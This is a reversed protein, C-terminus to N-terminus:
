LHKNQLLVRMLICFTHIPFGTVNWYCGRIGKVFTSAKGDQIGYGGAKDMPLGTLVYGHIMDETLQDFDVETRTVNMVLRCHADIYESYHVPGAAREETGSAASQDHRPTVLVLATLVAHSSGSLTRLMNHADTIDSPKELIRDQLVVISDAAIILDFPTGESRMCREVDLAKQRATELVYAAPDAFKSKDLDEAFQSPRIAFKMGMNHLADKRRPSASALYIKKEALYNLHPELM